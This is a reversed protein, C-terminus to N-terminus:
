SQGEGFTRQTACLSAYCLLTERLFLSPKVTCRRRGRFLLFMVHSTRRLLAERQSPYRRSWCVKAIIRKCVTNNSDQPSKLIVVDGVGLRERFYPFREVALIDGAEHFTPLMSPGQVQPLCPTM